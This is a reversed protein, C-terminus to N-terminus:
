ARLNKLATEAHRAGETGAHRTRLWELEAEARAPDDLPGLYLDILRTTARYDASADAGPARRVRAFLEAARAPDVGHRAYTDALLLCLAPDDPRAALHTNLAAIAEDVRGRALLSKEYSYDKISPTGGGGPLIFATAGRASGEAIAMTLAASGALAGVFALIGLPVVWGGVSGATFSMVLGGILAAIPLSWALARWLHPDSFDIRHAIDVRVRPSM